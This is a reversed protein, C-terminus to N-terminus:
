MHYFLSLFDPLYIAVLVVWNMIEKWIWIYKADCLSETYSKLCYNKEPLLWSRDCTYTVSPEVVPQFLHMLVTKGPLLVSVSM